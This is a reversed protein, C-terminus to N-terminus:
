SKIEAKGGAAEIAKKASESFASAVINFKKSLKGNALIKVGFKAEKILNIKLLKKADILEGDNFKKELDGLNVVAPKTRLSRFGRNKPISRLTQKLGMAKLGRKGGSRSRQGKMGRGSYTGRKGGRGVIRKTRKSGKAPKLNSLTLSM